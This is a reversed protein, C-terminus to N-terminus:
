EQMVVEGIGFVNGKPLVQMADEKVREVGGIIKDDM